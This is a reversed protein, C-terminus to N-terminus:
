RELSKLYRYYESDTTLLITTDSDITDKYTELTKLFSYFEPNENYAKAYISIAEADAKGRKEQAEKYATSAIRKLEKGMKGEIEAKEGEGESRYKEAVRQRESIMRDYVRERVEKAYNIRKIRVDILEIGYQSIDGSARNLIMKSLEKGKVPARGEPTEKVDLMTGEEELISELRDTTRVVELLNTSTIVDRVVSSIIDDLRAQAGVEHTVSELFKLPKIIKWRATVDVWIYRKDKTPIQNPKGDWELVRKDFYNVKQIFPVKFNLGAEKIPDGIPKGFQTVIVQETENVIFIAGSIVLFAIFLIIGVIAFIPRAM